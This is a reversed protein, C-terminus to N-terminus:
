GEPDCVVALADGVLDEQDALNDSHTVWRALRLLRLRIGLKATEAAVRELSPNDAEGMIAARLTHLPWHSHCTVISQSHM